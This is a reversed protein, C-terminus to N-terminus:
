FELCTCGTDPIQWSCGKDRPQAPLHQGERIWWRSLASKSTHRDPPFHNRVEAEIETFKMTAVM